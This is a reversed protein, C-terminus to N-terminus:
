ESKPFEILVGRRRLLASRCTAGATSLWAELPSEHMQMSYGNAALAKSLAPERTPDVIVYSAGIGELLAVWRQGSADANAQNRAEWLAPDYRRHLSIAHGHGAGVFPKKPDAMLVCAEPNAMMVRELLAREPMVKRLVDVRAGPGERLLQTWHNDRAIWSTTPMLAANALVLLVVAIAFARRVSYRALAVVGLVALVSLAPFIYRLYQVSSFVLLGTALAWLLLARPAGRRVADIVLAPLLALTAVGAAGPHFEGFRGTNFTLDWLSRWSTGATWRVDRFNELPYYPSQFVANYFPFLPNGTVLLAYAYSSGGVLLMTALMTATWRLRMGTSQMAVMWGVLPLMYVLNSTKLALLLGCTAGFGVAGLKSMDRGVAMAALHLLIATSAGDVQMTTTFYGALPQSAFVTAAALAARQSADLARALRYAGMIGLMLWVLAVAARAEGGALMAAVAHLVNNAWPAVAWSQTQVDLRYYGDFLLQSPLILHVANDDYNLSPLWLGLSAVTAAGVLLITWQPQTSALARMSVAADRLHDSISRRRLVVVAAALLLYLWRQHVPFPLLWGVLAAILGLGVILQTAATPNGERNALSGLGLAVLALLTAVASTVLGAFVVFGILAPLAAVCPLWWAWRSGHRSALGAIGAALAHWATVGALLWRYDVRINAVLDYRIFAFLLIPLPLLLLWTAPHVRVPNEIANSM